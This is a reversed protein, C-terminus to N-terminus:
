ASLQKTMLHQMREFQEQKVRISQSVNRMTDTTLLYANVAHQQGFRRFRRISQYLREFSFDLSAFVTNHCNQYNLGFSAIQQKTILVRFQNDAFALLMEEKYAPDDSGKVEVACPILKRLAEGEENQKIWVVFNESSANVIEAAMKMRADRTRRLEGNFETASVAVDNFLSLGRSETKIEREILNLPPLIYGDDSFGIDSPLTLMTAWSRVYEYFRHEAHGKLRWKNTEAGDHVFFMSLMEQRSMAGLFESHNGLEMPDNPAPTATCALKYTTRRFGDIILNRYAGEYNKLISSEDLVIGSYDSPDIKDLNEYNVVQIETDRGVRDVSNYGFKQAERITQGGVALPCVLLVPRGDHRSVQHAFELEMFTKGLGCDAFIGYRGKNLAEQIIHSQFAFLRDNLSSPTIGSGAFRRQKSSLFIQYDPAHHFSM